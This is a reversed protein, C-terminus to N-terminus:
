GGLFVRVPSVIYTCYLCCCVSQKRMTMNRQLTASAPESWSGNSRLLGETAASSKGAPVGSSVTASRDEAPSSPPRTPSPSARTPSPPARTPKPPLSSRSKRAPPSPSPRDTVSEEELGDGLDVAAVPSAAEEFVMEAEEEEEEEEEQMMSMMPKRARDPPRPPLAKVVGSLPRSKVPDSREPLVTRGGPLNGLWESGEGHEAEEGEEEVVDGICTAVNRSNAHEEEEEEEEEMTMSLKPKRPKMPPHPPGAKKVGSLPRSRSIGKGEVQGQHRMENIEREEPEETVGAVSSGGSSREKEEEEKEEEEEEEMTMSLKPKRM